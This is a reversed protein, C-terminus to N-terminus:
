RAEHKAEWLGMLHRRDEKQLGYIAKVDMSEISSISPYAHGSSVIARALSSRKVQKGLWRMFHSRNRAM